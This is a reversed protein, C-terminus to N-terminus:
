ILSRFVKTYCTLSTLSKIATITLNWNTQTLKGVIWVPILRSTALSMNGLKREAPEEEIALVKYISSETKTTGSTQVNLVVNAAFPTGSVSFSTESHFSKLLNKPIVNPVFRQSPRLRLLAM